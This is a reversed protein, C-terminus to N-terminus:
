LTAGCEPCFVDRPGVQARCVACRDDDTVGTASAVPWRSTSESSSSTASPAGASWASWRTDDSAPYHADGNRQRKDDVQFRAHGNTAPAAFAEPRVAVGSSLPSTADVNQGFRGSRAIPEYPPEYVDSDDQSPIRVPRQRALMGADARGRVAHPQRRSRTANVIWGLVTLLFLVGAAGLLLVDAQHLLATSIIGEDLAAGQRLYQAIWAVLYSLLLTANFAALLGGVLRSLTGPRSPGLAAGGGYGLLFTGAFLLLMSTSFTAVSPEVGLRIALEDGWQTAFRDALTAGLLIGASVMAEKAAGRRIGFPIFLLVVLGLLIDLLLSTEIRPM